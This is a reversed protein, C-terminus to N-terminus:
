SLICYVEFFSGPEISLLEKYTNSDILPDHLLEMYHLVLGSIVHPSYKHLDM